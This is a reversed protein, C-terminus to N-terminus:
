FVSHQDENLINSLTLQVPDLKMLSKKETFSAKILYHFPTHKFSIQPPFKGGLMWPSPMQMPVAPLKLPDSRYRLSCSLNQIQLM